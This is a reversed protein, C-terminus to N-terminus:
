VGVGDAFGVKGSGGSGSGGVWWGGDRMIYEESALTGGRVPDPRSATALRVFNTHNLMSLTSAVRM